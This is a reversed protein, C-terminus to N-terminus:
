GSTILMGDRVEKRRFFWFFVQRGTSEHPRQIQGLLTGPPAIFAEPPLCFPDPLNPAPTRFVVDGRPTSNCDSHFKPVMQSQERAFSREEQVEPVNWYVLVEGPFAQLVRELAQLVTVDEMSASFHPMGPPPLGCGSGGSFFGSRGNPSIETHNATAYAAVEPTRLIIMLATSASYIDGFCIDKLELHTIRIRLVDGPVGKQKMVVIGAANRSVHMGPVDRSTARLDRLPSKPTAVTRFHPLSPLHMEHKGSLQLFGSLNDQALVDFIPGLEEGWLHLEQTRSAGSGGMLCVAVVFSFAFRLM